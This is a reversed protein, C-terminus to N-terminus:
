RSMFLHHGGKEEVLRLLLPFHRSELDTTSPTTLLLSDFEACVQCFLLLHQCSRYIHDYTDEASTSVSARPQCTLLIKRESAGKCTNFDVTM